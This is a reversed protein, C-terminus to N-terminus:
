KPLWTWTLSEVDLSATAIQDQEDGDEEDNEGKAAKTYNRKSSDPINDENDMRTAEPPAVIEPKNAAQKDQARDQASTDDGNPHDITVVTNDQEKNYDRALHGNRSCKYCHYPM